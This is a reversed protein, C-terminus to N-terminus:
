VWKRKGGKLNKLVDILQEGVLVKRRYKPIWVIHYNINHKCHSSTRVKALRVNIEHKDPNFHPYQQKAMNKRLKM